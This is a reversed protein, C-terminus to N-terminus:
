ELIKGAIEDGSVFYSGNEYRAKLEAVRESMPEPAMGLAKRVKQYDKARNSIAVMDVKEEARTARVNQGTSPFQYSGFLKSTNKIVM